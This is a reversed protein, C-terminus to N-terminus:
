NCKLSWIKHLSQHKLNTVHSQAMLELCCFYLAAIIVTVIIATFAACCCCNCFSSQCYCRFLINILM